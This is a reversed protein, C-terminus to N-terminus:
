DRLVMLWRRMVALVLLQQKQMEIKLPARRLHTSNAPAFPGIFSMEANGESLPFPCVLWCGIRIAIQSDVDMAHSNSRLAKDLDLFKLTTALKVSERRIASEIAWLGSRRKTLARNASPGSAPNRARCVARFQLGVDRQTM